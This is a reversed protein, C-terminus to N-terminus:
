HQTVFETPLPIEISPPCDFHEGVFRDRRDRTQQSLTEQIQMNCDGCIMAPYHMSDMKLGVCVANLSYEKCESLPRECCNCGDYTGELKRNDELFETVQIMSEKSMESHLKEGCKYCMAYEFVVETGVWNKHILYTTDELKCSCALCEEFPGDLLFSHFVPDLPALNHEHEEENSANNEESDEEHM